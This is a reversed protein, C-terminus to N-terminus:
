IHILSLNLPDCHETIIVPTRLGVGALLALVNTETLHSVIVDASVRKAARRIALIRSYNSTVAGIIGKSNSLKDLGVRRVSDPISYFDTDKSSITVISVQYGLNQFKAAHTAVM